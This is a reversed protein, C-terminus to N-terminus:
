LAPDEYNVLRREGVLKEPPTIPRAQVNAIHKAYSVGKDTALREILAECRACQKAAAEGPTMRFIFLAVRVGFISRNPGALGMEPRLSYPAGDLILNALFMIFDTKHRSVREAFPRLASLVQVTPPLRNFLTTMISSLILHLGWFDLMLHCLRLNAFQIVRQPEFQPANSSGFPEEWYVPSTSWDNFNGYWEELSEDAAIAKQIVSQVVAMPPPAGLPAHAQQNETISVMSDTDELLAGCDFGRDYLQQEFDTITVWSDSRWEADGLPSRKRFQISHIM